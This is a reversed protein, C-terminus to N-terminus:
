EAVIEAAKAAAAAAAESPKVPVQRQAKRRKKKKKKAAAKKLYGERKKLTDKVKTLSANFDPKGEKESIGCVHKKFGKRILVNANANVAVFHELHPMAQLVLEEDGLLLETMLQRLPDDSKFEHLSALLDDFLAIHGAEVGDSELKTKLGYFAANDLVQERQGKLCSLMTICLIARTATEKRTISPESGAVEDAQPMLTREIITILHQVHVADFLHVSIGVASKSLFTALDSLEQMGVQKCDISKCRSLDSNLVAPVLASLGGLPRESDFLQSTCSFVRTRFATDRPSLALAADLLILESSPFDTEGPSELYAQVSRLVLDFATARVAVNKGIFSSRSFMQFFDPQNTYTSMVKCAISRRAAATYRTSSVNLIVKGARSRSHTQMPATAELLEQDFTMLQGVMRAFERKNIPSDDDAYITDFLTTLSDLFAPQFATFLRKLLSDKFSSDERLKHLTSPLVSARHLLETVLLENSVFEEPLLTSSFRTSYSGTLASLVTDSGLVTLRATEAATLEADVTSVAFSVLGTLIMQNNEYDKSNTLQRSFFDSYLTANEVIHQRLRPHDCANSFCRLLGNRQRKEFLSSKRSLPTCIGTLRDVFSDDCIVDGNQSFYLCESLLRLARTGIFDGRYLSENRDLSRLLRVQFVKMNVYPHALAAESLKTDYHVSAQLEEGPRATLSFNFLDRSVADLFTAVVVPAQSCVSTMQAENQFWDAALGDMVLKVSADTLNAWGFDAM